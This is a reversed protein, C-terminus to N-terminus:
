FSNEPGPFQGTRVESVYRKLGRIFSAKGQAYRKAHKFEAPWLGVVDHFVQVQGDCHAGAGIGITPVGVGETVLAAAEATVLELVMSFVGAEELAKGAAVLARAADKKGQVKHGGFVNVSQPTMGIHGMVPIGAMTIARIEDLYLGELKVAESGARVLQVSNELAQEVSGGYSGLPLDAVLLARQVGKRAARVHHLMAEMDVKTTTPEGMIVTGLSDGVLVLDAGAEEVILASTYDYATLCVVKEGRAKMARIGPATMKKPSTRM